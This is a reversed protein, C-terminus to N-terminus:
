SRAPFRPRGRRPKEEACRWSLVDLNLAPRSPLPSLPLPLAAPLRAYPFITRLECAWLYVHSIITRAYAYLCPCVGTRACVCRCVCMRSASMLVRVYIYVRVCTCM